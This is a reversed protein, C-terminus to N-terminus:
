VATTTLNGSNDVKIRYRTGNPSKLILGSTSDDVEVDGGDVHLRSVPSTTNIGVNSSYDITIAGSFIKVQGVNPAIDLTGSGNDWILQEAGKMAIAGNVDLTGQPNTTGIGVSGSSKITVADGSNNQFAM